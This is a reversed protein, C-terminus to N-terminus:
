GMNMVKSPVRVGKLWYFQCRPGFKQSGWADYSVYVRGLIYDCDTKENKITM